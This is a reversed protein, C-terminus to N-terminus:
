CVAAGARGPAIDHLFALTRPWVDALAARTAPDGDTGDDLLLGIGHGADPYHVHLTPLAGRRGAIVQAFRASPWIDDAGASVLLVQGTFRELAIAAPADPPFPGTPWGDPHHPVPEGGLTWAAGGDPWGMVVVYGPVGLVLATVDGGRRLALLQALETGRSRALVVLPGDVRERLLDLAREAYEVPVEHLTQPLGPVGFYTLALCSWGAAALAVGIGRNPHGGGSGGLVLVGGRPATAHTLEAVVGDRQLTLVEVLPDDM